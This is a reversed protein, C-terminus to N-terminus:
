RLFDVLSPQIIKAGSALAARHVAEESLLNTVAEEFEVGENKAMAEEATISQKELRDEILELRNMRAGLEARGHVFEKAGEQIGGVSEQMAESDNEHLAKEFSAIKDFLDENFVDEPTINVPFRVGKSVEMKVPHTPPEIHVNVEGDEGIDIPAKDTDTGNFIYKGNVKTNGIEKLQEKLPNIEKQISKREEKSYSDNAAQVALEEMRQMVKTGKDMADDSHEMWTWVESTNRSFQEIETMATRHKMGNMAVVPDDSPKTNKKGTNIQNMYKDMRYQSQFLHNMMNRQQMSQTVRM